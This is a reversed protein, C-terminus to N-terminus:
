ASATPPNRRSIQGFLHRFNLAIQAELETLSIGRLLALNEYAAGINAPHNLVEEGPPIPLTFHPRPPPMAPADTEVLLRDLPVARFARRLRTRRPDIHSTNFSFYAGKEVLGPIQETSGSYAHLLFGPRPIPTNRLIEDLHPWAQVCHISAPRDHDAAWRLQWACVEIQEEIPAARLTDFPPPAQRAPKLIFTDLGIEGVAAHPQACLTQHFISQWNVPRIRVDWPHIGYSPVIWPHRQALTTVANWDNLPHTGNVVAGGLNIATLDAVIQDLHPTFEEFQLHNHADFFM